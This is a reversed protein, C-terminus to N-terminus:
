PLTTWNKLGRKIAESKLYNRIEKEEVLHWCPFHAQDLITPDAGKTVLHTAMELSQVAFLPSCGDVDIANINAGHKLLLNTIAFNNSAIAKFIATEGTSTNNPDAGNKLMWEVAKLEGENHDPATDCFMMLPWTGDPAVHNINANFDVVLMRLMSLSVAHDLAHETTEEFHLDIMSQKIEKAIEETELEGRLEKPLDKFTENLDLDAHINDYQEAQQKRSEATDEHKFTYTIKAGSTLLLRAVEVHDNTVAAILASDGWEDLQHINAGDTILKKCLALNGNKAAEHLSTSQSPHNM